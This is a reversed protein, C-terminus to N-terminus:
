EDRYYGIQVQARAAEGELMLQQMRLDIEMRRAELVAALEGRGARYAALTADTRASAQPLTSNRYRALRENAAAWEAYARALMAQMERLNDDRMARAQDAAALKSSVERLQRNKKFVPLDIGVQVTVMDSFASGRLGYNVELSWDPSGSRQALEAEKEARAVQREFASLHPHAQVRASLDPLPPPAPLTPPEIPLPRQAATGIWRSLEARATANRQKLADARDRILDLEIRAGLVDAQSAKATRVGIALSEMQREAERELARVLDMTRQAYWAELWALATDRRIQRRTFALELQRQQGDIAVLEGRLRRKAARPFEQMLGVMRMTMFDDTLSFADPGTVPMNLIGLQLKPDPLQRAAVAAEEASRAAARQGALIPQNSEALELAENLSLEDAARVASAPLCAALVLCGALSRAAGRARPSLPVFM